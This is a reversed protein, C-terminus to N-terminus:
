EARLRRVLVSITPNAILGLGVFVGIGSVLFISLYPKIKDMVSQFAMDTEITYYGKLIGSVVLGLWFLLLSISFIWYGGKVMAEQKESFDCEPHQLKIYCVSALLIMTNIGLTSGMSHAVTIHTGHTYVNIAPVSILIALLLNM